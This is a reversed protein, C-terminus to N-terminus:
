RFANRLETAKLDVPEVLYSAHLDRVQLAVQWAVRQYIVEQRTALLGYLGHAQYRQFDANELEGQPLRQVAQIPGPIKQEQVPAWLLPIICSQHSPAHAASVVKRQSFAHWEMGCWESDTYPVSLLAIFIQCTGVAHLLEPTWRTGVNMRRDMYGRPGPWAVMEGVFQTLDDFFRKAEQQGGASNAHSMFFLPSDVATKGAQPICIWAGGVLRGDVSDAVSVHSFQYPSYGYAPGSFAIRYCADTVILALDDNANEDSANRLEASDLLQAAETVASGIFGVKTRQVPGSAVAARVRLHNESSLYRNTLRVENDLSRVFAPVVESEHCGSPSVALLGESTTQYDWESREPIATLCAQTVVSELMRQAAVRQSSSRSAYAAVDLAVCVRRLVDRSGHLSTRESIPSAVSNSRFIAFITAILRATALDIDDGFLDARQISSLTRGGGIDYDPIECDDFRVPILWPTGPHRLRLQEVALLLEENQYSHTRAISKSSFCVIFVLASDTIARRIAQRWDQGPWLSATDRWVSIGATVLADYLRDAQASDERVYSM